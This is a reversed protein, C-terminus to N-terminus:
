EAYYNAKLAHSPLRATVRRETREVLKEVLDTITYGRHRALRDVKARTGANLNLGVRVKEGDVGLHRERYRAQKECSILTVSMAGAPSLYNYWLRRETDYYAKLARSPLGATV